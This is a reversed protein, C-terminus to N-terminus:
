RLRRLFLKTRGWLSFNGLLVLVAKSETDFNPIVEDRWQHYQWREWVKLLEKGAEGYWQSSAQEFARAAEDATKSEHTRLLALCFFDRLVSIALGQKQLTVDVACGCALQNSIEKLRKRTQRAARFLSPFVERAVGAIVPGRWSKVLVTTRWGVFSMLLFVSLGMLILGRYPFTHLAQRDRIDDVDKYLTSRWEVPVKELKYEKQPLEEVKKGPELVVYPIVLAEITMSVKRIEFNRIRYHAKLVKLEGHVTDRLEGSVVEFPTLLIRKPDLGNRVVHVNDPYYINLYFDLEDGVFFATRGIQAEAWLPHAEAPNAAVTPPLVQAMVPVWFASLMILWVFKKRM